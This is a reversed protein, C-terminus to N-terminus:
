GQRLVEGFSQIEDRERGCVKRRSLRHKRGDFLEEVVSFIDVLDVPKDLEAAEIGATAVSAILTM